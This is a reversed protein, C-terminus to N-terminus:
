KSEFLLQSSDQSFWLDLFKPGLLFHISKFFPTKIRMDELSCKAKSIELSVCM